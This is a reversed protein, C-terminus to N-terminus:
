RERGAEHVTKQVPSLLYDMVSRSGLRIEASVQMGPTLEFREGDRTLHTSDLAVLARYGSPQAGRDRSPNPDAGNPSESADPSLHRVHGRV